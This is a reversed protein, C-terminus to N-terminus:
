GSPNRIGVFGGVQELIIGNLSESIIGGPMGPHHRGDPRRSSAIPSKANLSLTTL